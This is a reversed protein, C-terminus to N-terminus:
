YINVGNKKHVVHHLHKQIEMDTKLQYNISPQETTQQSTNENVNEVNSNQDESEQQPQPIDAEEPM